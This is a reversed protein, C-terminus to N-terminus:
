LQEALSVYIWLQKGELILWDILGIPIGTVTIVYIKDSRKM